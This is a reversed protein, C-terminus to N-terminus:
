KLSTQQLSSLLNHYHAGLYQRNPKNNLEVQSSKVLKGNAGNLVLLTVETHHGTLLQAPIYGLVMLPFTPFLLVSGFLIAPNVEAHYYYEVATFLINSTGYHQEIDKLADRDVPFVEVGEYHATQELMSYLTNRENFAVTGETTLSKQDITTQSIGLEASTEDLVTNLVQLSKESQERDLGNRKYYVMGPQVLIYKDLGMALRNVGAKADVKELKHREKASLKSYVIEKEKETAIRKSIQNFKLVFASDLMVDSLGYFYFKTSDFSDSGATKKTKIKDYKSKPQETKLSDAVQATDVKPKALEAAVHFDKKSYKNLSFQENGAITELLRDMVGGIVEDEPFEQQLDYLNRIALTFVANDNLKKLFFYLAASEGEYESSSPMTKSEKNEAKFQTLGLWAQAKMQKLYVSQPFERELLFISYLAQGFNADIIDTRLSEFRALNRIYVFKSEGLANIVTGWDSYDSITEMAANKRKKINPHSSRADNYDEEAKIPYKKTAFFSEPIYMKTTSYYSKPLEVEDFPLYSYMLVDFTSIIESESYGAAHYRKLAVRDAEFEHEKTHASLKEIRDQDYKNNNKWDFTEIVHKETYHTIEHSLIYALQAESTLQSILGTTVFIIGQDTSLANTENSKITYFRLKALLEPEDKLLNAAVAQVYLSIEDGYIVSGSHLLQDIGQHIGELFVREQTTSLDNRTGKDEIIKDRTTKTFDDSIAGQAVLTKFHNFDQQAIVSLSVSCAVVALIHQMTRSSFISTIKM